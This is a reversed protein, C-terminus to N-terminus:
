RQLLYYANPKCRHGLMLISIMYIAMTQFLHPPRGLSETLATVTLQASRIRHTVTCPVCWRMPLKTDFQASAAAGGAVDDNWPGAPGTSRIRDGLAKTAEIEATANFAYGV